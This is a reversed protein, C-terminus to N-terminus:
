LSRFNSTIAVYTDRGSDAALTITEYFIVVRSMLTGDLKHPARNAGWLIPTLRKGNTNIRIKLKNKNGTSEYEVTKM